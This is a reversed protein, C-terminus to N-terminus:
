LNSKICDELEADMWGDLWNPNSKTPKYPGAITFHDRALDSIRGAPVGGSAGRPKASWGALIFPNFSPFCRPIRFPRHWWDWTRRM